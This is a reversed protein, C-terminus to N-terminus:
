TCGEKVVVPEERADAVAFGCMDIVENINCDESLFILKRFCDSYAGCVGCAAV